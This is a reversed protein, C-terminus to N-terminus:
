KMILPARQFRSYDLQGHGSSSYNNQAPPTTLLSDFQSSSLYNHPGLSTALLSAQGHRSSYDRQDNDYKEVHCTTEDYQENAKDSNTTSTSSASTTTPSNITVESSELEDVSLDKIEKLKQQGDIFFMLDRLQDKLEDIEQNKTKMATDFDEKLKQMETQFYNQNQRLQQNMLREEDFDHQLKTIKTSSRKDQQQKDKAIVDLTTQLQQAHEKLLKNSQELEEIKGHTADEVFQLKDEFFRRQSELQSTLLYTYELEISDIKEQTTDTKSTSETYDDIDYTNVGEGRLEVLKGDSKNQILRHVYNDGVYDWVHQRKLDMTYTHQTLEFHGFAHGQKFRSCGVHGCILCIWLDEQSGCEFCSQGDIVEPTQVYRCVPCCSDGWKVLCDGHFSHNCLITLVGALSEDMRELCIYCPPLETLGPIPCSGEKATSTIDVKTVFALHCVGKEISNFQRNNYYDYFEDAQKQAKFKILCMYQNPTPDRIIRLYEIGDYAPYIFAILERCAVDAPIALMALMECRKPENNTGLAKNDKYLHLIGRTIDVLHNGCYFPIQSDPTTSIHTSIEISRNTDNTTTSVKRNKKTKNTVKTEPLDSIDPFTPQTTIHKQSEDTISSKPIADPENTNSTNMDQEHQQQRRKSLDLYTMEIADSMVNSSLSRHNPLTLKDDFVYTEVFLERAERQGTSATKVAPIETNNTNSPLIAKTENFSAEYVIYKLTELDSEFADDIELRLCIVM